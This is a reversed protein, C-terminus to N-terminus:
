STPTLLRESRVLSYIWWIVESEPEGGIVVPFSTGIPLEDGGDVRLQVASPFTVFTLFWPAQPDQQANPVKAAASDKKIM